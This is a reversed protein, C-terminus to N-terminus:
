ATPRMLRKMAEGPLLSSLTSPPSAGLTGPSALALTASALARSAASGPLTGLPRMSASCGSIEASSPFLPPPLWGFRAARRCPAVPLRAVLASPCSLAKSGSPGLSSRIMSTGARLFPWRRPRCPWVISFILCVLPTMLHWMMASLPRVSLSPLMWTCIKPVRSRTSAQASRTCRTAAPSWEPMPWAEATIATSCALTFRKLPSWQCTM